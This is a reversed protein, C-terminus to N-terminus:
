SKIKGTEELVRSRRDRKLSELREKKGALENQTKDLEEIKEREAKKAAGLDKWMQDLRDRFDKKGMVKIKNLADRLEEILSYTNAIKKNGEEKEIREKINNLEQLQKSIVNQYNILDKYKKQKSEVQRKAIEYQNKAKKCVKEESTIAGELKSIEGGYKERIESIQDKKKKELVVKSFMKSKIDLYSKIERKKKSIADYSDNYHTSVQDIEAKIEELFRIDRAKSDTQKSLKAMEQQDKQADAKLRELESNLNLAM